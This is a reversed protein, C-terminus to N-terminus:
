AKKMTEMKSIIKDTLADVKAFDMATTYYGELEDHIGKAERLLLEAQKVMQATAKRNFAIRKKSAKLKDNETFRQSNIIRYPDIDSMYDHFRNSTMFGLGLAPIFLQELKDFPSLPCYCSIIDYGAALASKRMSSLILRSVAGYDDNILYVRDCLQKVTDIFSVVGKNTVASLFRVKEKGHENKTPRLEKEALRSCYGALKQTSVCELALRYTDGSLSGAAALFRCCYEHCRSCRQSLTIIEDRCGFM